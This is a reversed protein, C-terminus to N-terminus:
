KPFYVLYQGSYIKALKQFTMIKILIKTCTRITVVFGTKKKRIYTLNRKM